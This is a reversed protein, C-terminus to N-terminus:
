KIKLVIKNRYRRNNEQISVSDLHAPNICRTNFCLHDITNANSIKGIFLEYAIRHALRGKFRSYGVKSKLNLTWCQDTKIIKSCFKEIDSIKFDEINSLRPHNVTKRKEWLKFDIIRLGYTTIIYNM